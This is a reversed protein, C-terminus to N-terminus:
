GGLFGAAGGVTISAWCCRCVYSSSGSQLVPGGCLSADDLRESFLVASLYILPRRSAITGNVYGSVLVM